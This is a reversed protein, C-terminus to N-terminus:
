VGTLKCQVFHIFGCFGVFIDPSFPSAEVNKQSGFYGEFSEAEHFQGAQVAEDLEAITRVGFHQTLTFLESEVLRLKHELYLPIMAFHEAVQELLM